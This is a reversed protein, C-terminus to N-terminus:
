YTRRKSKRSKPYLIEDVTRKDRSDNIAFVDIVTIFLILITIAYAIAEEADHTLLSPSDVTIEVITYINPFLEISQIHGIHAAIHFLEHGIISILVGTLAYWFRIDTLYKLLNNM